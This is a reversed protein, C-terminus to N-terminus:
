RLQPVLTSHNNETVNETPTERARFELIPILVRMLAYNANEYNESKDTVNVGVAVLWKLADWSDGIQSDYNEGVTPLDLQQGIGSEHTLLQRFTIGGAGDFSAGRAWDDPLFPGIEDDLSLGNARLVQLMAIASITKSASAIYMQTNANWPRSNGSGLDVSNRAIGNVSVNLLEGNKAIAYSHGITFGSNNPGGFEARLNQLFSREQASLQGSTYGGLDGVDAITWEPGVGDRIDAADVRRGGEMRWYHVRGDQHKFVIDGIGDGDMDGVGGVSWEASVPRFVDGAGVRKGARMRWFHIRGDANRWVLDDTGDGTVDGVGGLSWESGVNQHILVEGAIRADRDM